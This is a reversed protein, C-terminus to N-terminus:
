SVAFKFANEPGFDKSAVIANQQLSTRYQQDSKILQIYKVMNEIDGPNFCQGVAYRNVLAALESSQDAICLLAAGVSLLNFTKSPVSLVSAEKGLTVVALDAAALSFPFMDM